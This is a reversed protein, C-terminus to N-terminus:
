GNEVEKELLKILENMIPNNNSNWEKAYALIRAPDTEDKVCIAFYNAERKYINKLAESLENM